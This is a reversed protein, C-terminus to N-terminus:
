LYVEVVHRICTSLKKRGRFIGASYNGWENNNIRRGRENFDFGANPVLVPTPYWLINVIKRIKTKRNDFSNRDIINM